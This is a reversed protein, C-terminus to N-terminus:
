AHHHGGAYQQLQYLRHAVAVGFGASLSAAAHCSECVSASVVGGGLSLSLCKGQYRRSNCVPCQGDVPKRGVRPRTSHHSDTLASSLVEAFGGRVLAPAKAKHPSTM